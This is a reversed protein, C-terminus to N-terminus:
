LGNNKDGFEYNQLASDVIAKSTEILYHAAWAIASDHEFAMEETIKLASSLFASAQNLADDLEVGDRITFLAQRDINCSFFAYEKTTRIKKQSNNSMTYGEYTLKFVAVLVGINTLLVQRTPTGTLACALRAVGRWAQGNFPLSLLSFAALIASRSNAARMTSVGIGFVASAINHSTHEKINITTLIM